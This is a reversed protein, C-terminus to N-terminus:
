FPCKSEVETWRGNEPDHFGLQRAHLLIRPADAEDGPVIPPGGYLVDGVIPHGRMANQVRLQHMRGSEPCLELRSQRCVTNDPADCNDTADCADSLGGQCLARVRTTALKAGPDISRCPEVSARNEVKRIYDEWKKPSLQNADVEGEVIAEYVKQTKRSAFQASLLRASGKTLAVLIVGSVMCDLRHPFWLEGLDRGLEKLLVTELSDINSAAQTPLNPPKLVAIATRGRWLFEIDM